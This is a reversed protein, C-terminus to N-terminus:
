RRPERRPPACRATSPRSAWPSTRPAAWPSSSRPSPALTTWPSRARAMDRAAAGEEAAMAGPGLESRGFDRVRRSTHRSGGEPPTIFFFFPRPDLTPSDSVPADRTSRLHRVRAILWSGIANPAQVDVNAHRLRLRASPVRPTGGRSRRDSRPFRPIAISELTEQQLPRRAASAEGLSSAVRSSPEVHRSSRSVRRSLRGLVLASSAVDAIRFAIRSAGRTRTATSPTRTPRYWGHMRISSVSVLSLTPACRRGALDVQRTERQHRRQKDRLAMHAVGRTEPSTSSTAARRQHRSPFLRETECSAENGRFLALLFSTGGALRESFEFACSAPYCFATTRRARRALANQRKTVMASCLVPTANTPAVRAPNM